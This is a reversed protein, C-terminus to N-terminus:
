RQSQNWVTQASCAHRRLLSFFTQLTNLCVECRCFWESSAAARVPKREEVSTSLWRLYQHSTNYSRQMALTVGGMSMLLSNQLHEFCELAITRGIESENPHSLLRQEEEEMGIECAHEDCRITKTWLQDELLCILQEMQHEITAFVTWNFRNQQM